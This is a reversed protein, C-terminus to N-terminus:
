CLPAGRRRSARRSGPAMRAARGRCTSTATELRRRLATTPTPQLLFLPSYSRPVQRRLFGTGEGSYVVTM